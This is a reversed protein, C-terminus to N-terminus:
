FFLTIRTVFHHLFATVLSNETRREELKRRHKLLTDLFSSGPICYTHHLYRNRPCRCWTQHIPHIAPQIKWRQSMWPCQPQGKQCCAPHSYCTLIWLLRQIKVSDKLSMYNSKELFFTSSIKTSVPNGSLSTAFLWRKQITM